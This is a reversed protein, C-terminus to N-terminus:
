TTSINSSHWREWNPSICVSVSTASLDFINLIVKDRKLIHMGKYIRHFRNDKPSILELNTIGAFTRIDGSLAIKTSPELLACIKNILQEDLLPPANINLLTQWDKLSYLAIGKIKRLNDKPLNLDGKKTLLMRGELFGADISHKKLKGAIRKVKNNLREAEANVVIENKNIYTLDWYKIEIVIIGSPCIVLLDIEDSLGRSDFSFLLNSLLIYKGNGAKSELRRRIQEIALRESENAFFGCPIHEVKM